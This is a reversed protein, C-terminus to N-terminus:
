REEGQVGLAFQVTTHVPWQFSRTEKLLIDIFEKKSQLAQSFKLRRKVHEKLGAPLKALIIDVQTSLPVLHKVDGTTELDLLVGQVGILLSEVM